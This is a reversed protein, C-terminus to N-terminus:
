KKEVNDGMWHARAGVSHGGGGGGRAVGPVKLVEVAHPGGLLAGRSRDEVHPGCQRSRMWARAVVWGSDWHQGRRMQLALFPAGAGRRSVSDFATDCGVRDRSFVDTLEAWGRGAAAAAATGATGPAWLAGVADGTHTANGCTKMGWRLEIGARVVVRGWDRRAGGVLGPAITRGTGWGEAGANSVWAATRGSAGWAQVLISV